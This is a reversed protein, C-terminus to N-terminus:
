KYRAGSDMLDAQYDIYQGEVYSWYKDGHEECFHEVAIDPHLEKHKSYYKGFQKHHKDTYGITLEQHQRIEWEDITLM